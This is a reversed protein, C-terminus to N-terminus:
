AKEKVPIIIKTIFSDPQNTALETILYEEYADGTMEFGLKQIEGILYPYVSPISEYNGQHYLVAYLGGPRYPPKAASNALFLREIRRFCGNKLDDLALISGTYAAYASVNERMFAGYIDSWEESTTELQSSNPKSLIIPQPPLNKMLVKGFVAQSIEDSMDLIRQFTQQLAQLKRIEQKTKELQAQTMERLREPSPAHLYEQIERIPVNMQRLMLLTDMASIQSSTYYRYGNQGVAAPSFLGIRDYYFLTDKRIGFYQAFEGTTYRKEEHRKM